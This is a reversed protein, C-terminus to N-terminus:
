IAPGISQPTQIRGKLDGDPIARIADEDFLDGMESEVGTRRIADLWKRHVRPDQDGYEIQRGGGKPDPEPEYVVHM